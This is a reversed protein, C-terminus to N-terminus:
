FEHKILTSLPGTDKNIKAHKREDGWFRIRMKPVNMVDFLIWFQMYSSM